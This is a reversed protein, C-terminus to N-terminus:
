MMEAYNLSIWGKGNDLKGWIGNEEVITCIDNLHVYGVTAYSTGAGARIRLTKTTIKVNYVGQSGSYDYYANNVNSTYAYGAGCGPWVIKYWGNPLIELVEVVTGKKIAGFSKTQASAGERINISRKAVASGIGKGCYKTNGSNSTEQKPQEKAVASGNSLVMVTHSGPKTLIDGRKLLTDKTLYASDTIVDFLGTKVFANKMSSTTRMNNSIYFYDASIGAAIACICM